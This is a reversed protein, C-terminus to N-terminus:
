IANGFLALVGVQILRVLVVQDSLAAEGSDESGGPLMILAHKCDFPGHKRHFEQVLFLLLSNEILDPQHLLVRVWKDDFYNVIKNVIGAM